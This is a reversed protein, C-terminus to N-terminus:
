PPLVAVQGLLRAGADLSEEGVVLGVGSQAHGDLLYLVVGIETHRVVGGTFPAGVHRGTDILLRAVDIHQCGLQVLVETQSRQVPFVHHGILVRAVLVHQGQGREVEEGVEVQLELNGTHQAHFQSGVSGSEGLVISGVEARLEILKGHLLILGAADLQASIGKHIDIGIHHQLTHAEEHHHAVHEVALAVAHLEQSGM